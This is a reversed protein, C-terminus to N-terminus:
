RPRMSPNNKDLAPSRGISEELLALFAKEASTLRKDRRYILRLQRYCKFEPVRLVKVRGAEEEAVLASHSLMGVGLGAWVARKVAENSGLEMRVRPVIGLRILHSEALRRTASGKERLIFGEGRLEELAIKKRQALAHNPSAFLVIRDATLPVVVFDADRVDEGVFGLDIEHRLVRAVVQESNFIHLELEVGPYRDKFRGMMEPLFYEGTTTSAGLILRGAAVAGLDKLVTEMEGALAFIRRAYDFVIEGAQTLVLGRPVRQILPHGCCEELVKVQNSVAPQSICLEEAARSFSRLSAVKHFIYLHHFNLEAM